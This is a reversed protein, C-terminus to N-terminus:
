AIVGNGSVVIVVGEAAGEVVVELSVVEVGGEILLEGEEAEPIFALGYLEEAEIGALVLM